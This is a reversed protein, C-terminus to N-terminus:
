RSNLQDLLKRIAARPLVLVLAFPRILLTILDAVVRTGVGEGFLMNLLIQFTKLGALIALIWLVWGPVTDINLSTLVPAMMLLVFSFLVLTGGSKTVRIGLTLSVARVALGLGLVMVGLVLGGTALTVLLGYIDYGQTLSAIGFEM